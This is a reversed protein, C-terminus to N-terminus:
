PNVWDGNAQILEILASVAEAEPVNRRIIEKQKYLTILGKGTGVYGYDADAMEGPGNVICGMIGIKLGKLHQTNARIKATTEQLDFETRGCSPCAIYETKSSRQRAAQLISFAISNVRMPAIHRATIGIGNGMGDLLLSGLDVAADLIFQEEDATQYSEWLLVPSEIQHEQLTQFFLAQQALKHLATTKFILVVTPDNQLHQLAELNEADVQVFNLIAHKKPTLIYEALPLLPYHRIANPHKVWTSYDQIIGLSGPIEFNIHQQGIYIYDAAQDSLTWKDTPVAYRLGFPYFAAARLPELASVKDLSRDMLVVPVADAGINLIQHTKRKQYNLILKPWEKTNEQWLVYRDVIKQGVPMEKEPDETLSVRITDGIGQALLTGIGLASKVRGDEGDGAETVGLHLPYTMKEKMLALVLSRYAQVMVIVNSSKMSIVVQDYHYKQCIRLFEMASEVMGAPTDGYRSMIRDSLSGHNVGIRMAVGKEQCLQVLPAFKEAIRQLEQAYSEDTYEIDEFRKKDAYNGPNIRVKEVHLAAEHAANPTFHIDAVLPTDYGKARIGAKIRGLNAAEKINPATLRVLKCGAQIMRIAQQISAETDMTSTSTMSQVAIPQDAGITLTGIHVPHTSYRM